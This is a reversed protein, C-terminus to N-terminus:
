EDTEVACDKGFQMGEVETKTVRESARTLRNVVELSRLCGKVPSGAWATEDM